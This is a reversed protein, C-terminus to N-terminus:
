KKRRFFYTEQYSSTGVAIDMNVIEYGEDNIKQLEKILASKLDKGIIGEVKEGELKIAETKGNVHKHIEKGILVVIAYDETGKQQPTKSIFSFLLLSTLVVFTAISLKTKM